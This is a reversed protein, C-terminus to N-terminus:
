IEVIIQVLNIQAILEQGDKKAFVYEKNPVFGMLLVIILVIDKLVTMVKGVWIVFVNAKKMVDVM